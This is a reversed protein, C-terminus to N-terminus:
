TRRPAHCTGCPELKNYPENNIESYLFQGALPLYDQHVRPCNDNAHYFQGGEPNYYITMNPDSTVLPVITVQPVATAVGAEAIPQSSGLSNPDVYWVDNVRMMLVQMGYRRPTEGNNKSLTTEMSITRTSDADSGSVDTFAYDLPSRNARIQFMSQKPDKQQSVWSPLSLEVMRAYDVNIWAAMFQDLQQQALSASGPEPTGPAAALDQQQQQATMDVLSVSSDPDFISQLDGGQAGAGAAVQQTQQRPPEATPASIWVAFLAVVIMAMHIISLTMRANPVFASMLWMLLLSGASVAAFVIYLGNSRVLLAIVFLVPLLITLLVQLVTFSRNGMAEDQWDGVKRPPQPANGRRPSRRYNQLPASSYRSRQESM